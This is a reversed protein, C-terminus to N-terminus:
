ISYHGVHRPRVSGVPKLRNCSGIGLVSPLGDRGGKGRTVLRRNNM